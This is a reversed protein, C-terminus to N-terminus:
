SHPLVLVPVQVLSCITSGKCTADKCPSLQRPLIWRGSRFKEGSCHRKQHQMWKRLCHCRHRMGNSSQRVWKGCTATGIEFCDGNLPSTMNAPNWGLDAILRCLFFSWSTSVQTNVFRLTSESLNSLLTPSPFSLPLAQIFFRGTAYVLEDIERIGMECMWVVVEVVVVECFSRLIAAVM